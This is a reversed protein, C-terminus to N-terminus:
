ARITALATGLAGIQERTEVPGIAEVNVRLNLATAGSAKFERAIATGLAPPDDGIAIPAADERAGASAYLRALAAQSKESLPGLHARRILVRPGTGGAATYAAFLDRAAAPSNYAGALIGAGAAAARAAGRVGEATSLVPVPRDRCAAIARDGAVDPPPEGRLAAV